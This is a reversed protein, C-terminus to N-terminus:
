VLRRLCLDMPPGLGSLAAFGRCPIRSEKQTGQRPYSHRPRGSHVIALQLFMGKALRNAYDGDVRTCESAAAAEEVISALLVAVKLEDRSPKGSPWIKQANRWFSDVM